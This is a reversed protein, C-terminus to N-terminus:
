IGISPPNDSMHGDRYAGSAGVTRIAASRHAENAGVTHFESSRSRHSQAPPM